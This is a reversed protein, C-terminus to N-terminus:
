RFFGNTVSSSGRFGMFVFWKPERAQKGLHVQYLPTIFPYNKMKLGSSRSSAMELYALRIM